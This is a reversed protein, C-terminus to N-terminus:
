GYTDRPGRSGPASRMGRRWSPASPGKVVVATVTGHGLAANLTRVLQPALYRLQTAWATSDAAVVLEGDTYSDPRCHAALEAGVIEEWRGTVGGIAADAQWGRDALLREIARGVPQPDRDDPGSGSRTVAATRRASRRDPTAVGRKAAAARVAALASKALDIGSKPPGTSRPGAPE